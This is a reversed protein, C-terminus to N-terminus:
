SGSWYRRRLTERHEASIAHVRGIKAAEARLQEEQAELWALEEADPETPIRQKRLDSWLVRLLGPNGQAQPRSSPARRRRGRGTTELEKEESAM